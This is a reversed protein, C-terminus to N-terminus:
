PPPKLGAVAALNGNCTALGAKLDGVASGWTAGSLDVAIPATITAPIPLYSKMTVYQVRVIPQSSCASVFIVPAVIAIKKIAGIIFKGQAMLRANLHRIRVGSLCTLSRYPAGIRHTVPSLSHVRLNTLLEIGNDPAVKRGAILQCHGDVGSGFESETERFDVSLPHLIGAEKHTQGTLVFGLKDFQM